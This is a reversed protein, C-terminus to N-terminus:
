RASPRRKKASSTTGSFEGKIPAAISCVRTGPTLQFPHYTHWPDAATHLGTGSRVRVKMQTRTVITSQHQKMRNHVGVSLGRLRREPVPRSVAGSGHCVKEVDRDDHM